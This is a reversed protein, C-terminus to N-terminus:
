TINRLDQIEFLIETVKEPTLYGMVNDTIPTEYTLNGDKDLVALEYLGQKGGYSYNHCVVSAGYGNDFVIRGGVGGISEYPIFNIDNFTKFKLQLMDCLEEIPITTMRSLKTVGYKEYNDRLVEIMSKKSM